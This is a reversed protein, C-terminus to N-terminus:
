RYSVVGMEVFSRRDLRTAGERRGIDPV